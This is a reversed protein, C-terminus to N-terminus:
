RFTSLVDISVAKYRFNGAGADLYEVTGSFNLHM